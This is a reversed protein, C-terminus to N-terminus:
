RDAGRCVFAVHVSTEWANLHEPYPMVEVNAFAERLRAVQGARDPYRGSYDADLAPSYGTKIFEDGVSCQNKVLALGGPALWRTMRRYLPLEADRDMSTVVGFLLILDFREDTDFADLSSAVFRHGPATFSRAYAPAFDVALLRADTGAVARSLEGTGSGLDLVSAPSPALSRIMAIEHDLMANSTWRNSEERSKEDWFAKIVAHDVREDPV